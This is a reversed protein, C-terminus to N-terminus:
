KPFDNQDEIYYNYTAQIFLNKHTCVIYMKM